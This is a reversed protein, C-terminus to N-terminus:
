RIIEVAQVALRLEPRDEVCTILTLRNDVTYQLYTWDTALIQGAFVVQYTRTGLKTTYTLTDGVRLEKLRGFHTNVGRNYGVLGINSNWSSTSAIHGIGREMAAFTDGDYAIVTLNIRPISLTGISRDPNRVNEISTLTYQLAYAVEASTAPERQERYAEPHPGTGRGVAGQGGAPNPANRPRESELGYGANLEPAIVTAGFRSDYVTQPTFDYIEQVWGPIPGDFTVSTMGPKYFDSTDANTFRYNDVAFV